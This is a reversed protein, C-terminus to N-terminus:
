LSWNNIVIFLDQFDVIGDKNFDAPTGGFPALGWHNIVGLLDDVNVMQDCNYDGMFAPIPTLLFAVTGTPGVGWGTAQGGVNIGYVQYINLDSSSPILDNFATMVGDRWVFGRDPASPKTSYGVISGDDNLDVAFSYTYGPLVGLDTVKGKSWFCAHSVYFLGNPIIYNGCVEGSNNVSQANSATGGPPIGLDIVSGDAHLVFGSATFGGGPGVGMWGCIDGNANVHNAINSPGVPLNLDSIVGNVWKVAHIGFGVSSYGVIVGADNISYPIAEAFGPLSGLDIVVGAQYGFPVNHAVVTQIRCTVWSPIQGMSQIHQAM